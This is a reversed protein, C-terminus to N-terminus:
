ECARIDRATVTLGYGYRLNQLCVRGPVRRGQREQVAYYGVRSVLHRGDYYRKELLTGGAGVVWAVRASGETQTFVTAGPEASVACGAPPQWDFFMREVDHALMTTFAPRKFVDLAFHCHSTGNSGIIEFLTAGTPALCALGFSRTAANVELFGLGSVNRGHFEFLVSNVMQLRAPARRGLAELAAAPDPAPGDRPPAEWRLTACGTLLLLVLM